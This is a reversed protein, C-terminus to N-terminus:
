APVWVVPAGTGAIAGGAVTLAADTTANMPKTVVCGPGNFRMHVAATTDTKSPGFLADSSTSLVNVVEGACTWKTADHRHTFNGVRLGKSNADEILVAGDSGWGRGVTDLVFNSILLDQNYNTRLGLLTEKIKLKGYTVDKYTLAGARATVNGFIVGYGGTGEAYFDGFHIGSIDGCSAASVNNGFYVAHSRAGRWAGNMGAATTTFPSAKCTGITLAGAAAGDITVGTVTKFLRRTYVTANNPGTVTESYAAGSFDTGTITLTRNSLNAASTIQLKRAGIYGGAQAGNIAVAGAAGPTVSTVLGNAVDTALGLPDNISFCVATKANADVSVVVLGEAAAGSTSALQILDGADIRALDAATWAAPLGVTGVVMYNETWDEFSPRLQETITAVDCSFGGATNYKRDGTVRCIGVSHGRLGRQLDLGQGCNHLYMAGVSCNESEFALSGSDNGWAQYAIGYEDYARLTKIHSRRVGAVQIFCGGNRIDYALAHNAHIYGNRRLVLTDIEIDNIGAWGAASGEARGHLGRVGNGEAEFYGIRINLPGSTNESSTFFGGHYQNFQSKINDIWFGPCNEFRFGSGRSDFQAKIWPCSAARNGDLYGLGDRCYIRLGSRNQAFLINHGPHVTAQVSGSTSAPQSLTVTLGNIAEVRGGKALGTGSLYMLPKIARAVPGAIATASGQTLQLSISFSTCRKISASKGFEIGSDDILQLQDDTWYTAMPMLVLKLGADIIAQMAKTDTAGTTDGSPLVAGATVLGGSQPDQGVQLLPANSPNPGDEVWAGEGPQCLEGGIFRPGASTNEVWRRPM